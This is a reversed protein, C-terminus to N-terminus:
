REPLRALVPPGFRSLSPPAAFRSSRPRPSDVCGSRNIAGPAARDISPVVPASTPICTLNARIVVFAGARTFSAFPSFDCYSSDMVYILRPEIPIEGLIKAGHISGQTLALFTPISATLDLFIHLPIAAKPSRFRAWPFLSSCFDIVTAHLAYITQNADLAFREEAYLKRARRTLSQAWDAYIRWDCRENADARTSRRVHSRFGMQYPLEFPLVAVVGFRAPKRSVHAARFDGGTVSRPMRLRQGVRARSLTSHLPSLDRTASAWWKCLCRRLPWARLNLRSRGPWVCFTDCGSRPYRV